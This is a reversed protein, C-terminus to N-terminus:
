SWKRTPLNSWSLSNIRDKAVFMDCCVKSLWSNVKSWSGVLMDGSFHQNSTPLSGGNREKQFFNGVKWPRSQACNESWRMLPEFGFPGVWSEHGPYVQTTTKTKQRYIKMGLIPPFSGIQSMGLIPPFSGIQSMGLIPPFSGIQSKCIKKWIPETSVM